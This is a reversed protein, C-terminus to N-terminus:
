IEGSIDTLYLGITHPIKQKLVGNNGASFERNENLIM